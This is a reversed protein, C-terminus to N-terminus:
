DEGWLELSKRSRSEREDRPLQALSGLNSSSHGKPPLDGRWDENKTQDQLFIIHHWSKSKKM